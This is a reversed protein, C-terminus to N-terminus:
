RTNVQVTQRRTGSSTPLFSRNDPVSFKEEDSAEELIMRMEPLPELSRGKVTEERLGGTIAQGSMQEGELRPLPFSLHTTRNFRYRAEYDPPTYGRAKQLAGELTEPGTIDHWDTSDPTNTRGQKEQPKHKQRQRQRREWALVDAVFRDPNEYQDLQPREKQARDSGAHGSDGVLLMALFLAFTTCSRIVPMM